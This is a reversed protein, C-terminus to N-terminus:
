KPVEEAEVVCARPKRMWHHKMLRDILQATTFVINAPGQGAGDASMPIMCTGGHIGKMPVGLLLWHDGDLWQTVARLKSGPNEWVQGNRIIM